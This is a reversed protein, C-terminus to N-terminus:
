RWAGAATTAESATPSGFAFWRTGRYSDAVVWGAATLACSIVFEGWKARDAHDTFVTPVWVLLTFVGMQVASLATGLRAYVGFLIAAAAAIYATGTFYAFVKHAPLWGPVLSATFNLYAFHSLGFAILALAYLLRANRVGKVGTVLGLHRRDWDPAYWAYLVGAAAALVATEGSTQYSAEVLPQLAIVRGKIWVLWLLLCAFLLRAASPATRNSFLAIGCGLSIVACLNTLAQHGYFTKPLGDWVPVFNGKILGFIGIFAFTSAFVAHGISAIRM